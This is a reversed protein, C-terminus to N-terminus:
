GDFPTAYCRSAKISPNHLAWSMPKLEMPNILM